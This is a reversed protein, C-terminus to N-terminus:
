KIVKNLIDNIEQNLKRENFGFERIYEKTLIPDAKTGPHEVKKTFVYDGIKSLFFRLVKKVKPTITHARTGFEIYGAVKSDSGVEWSNSSEVIKISNMLDGTVRHTRKMKGKYNNFLTKSKRSFLLRIEPIFESYNSLDNELKKMSIYAM